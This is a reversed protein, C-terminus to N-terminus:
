IPAATTYDLSHRLQATSRTIAGAMNKNFRTSNKASSLKLFGKSEGLQRERVIAIVRQRFGFPPETAQHEPLDGFGGLEEVAM